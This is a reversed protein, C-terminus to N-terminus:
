LKVTASPAVLNCLCACIFCLIYLIHSYVLSSSEISDIEAIGFHLAAQVLTERPIAYCKHLWAISHRRGAINAVIRRWSASYQYTTALSRWM